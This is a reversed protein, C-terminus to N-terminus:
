KDKQWPSIIRQDQKKTREPQSIKTTNIMLIELGNDEGFEYIQPSTKIKHKPKEIM